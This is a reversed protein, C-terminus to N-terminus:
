GEREPEPMFTLRRVAWMVAAAETDGLRVLRLWWLRRVRENRSSFGMAELTELDEESPDADVGWMLCYNLMAELGDNVQAQREEPLSRMWEGIGKQGLGAVAYFEGLDHKEDLFALANAGVPKM